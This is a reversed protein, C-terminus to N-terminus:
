LSKGVPYFQQNTVESCIAAANASKGLQEDDFFKHVLNHDVLVLFQLLIALREKCGNWLRTIM